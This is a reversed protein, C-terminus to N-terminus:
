IGVGPSQPQDTLNSELPKNNLIQKLVAKAHFHLPDESAKKLWRVASDWDQPILKGEHCIRGMRIQANPHDNNAATAIMLVGKEADIPDGWKGLYFEGMQYHAETSGHAIALELFELGKKNNKAIYKGTFYADAVRIMKDIDGAEAHKAMQAIRSHELTAGLQEINVIPEDKYDVEFVGILHNEEKDFSLTMTVPWSILGANGTGNHTALYEKAAQEILDRLQHGKTEANPLKDVALQRPSHNEARYWIHTKDTM